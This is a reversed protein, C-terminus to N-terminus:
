VPPDTQARRSTGLHAASWQDHLRVLGEQQLHVVGVRLRAPHRDRGEGLQLARRLMHVRVAQRWQPQPVGPRGAVVGLAHDVGQDLVRPVRNRVRQKDVHGVGHVAVAPQLQDVVGGVAQHQAASSLIGTRSRPPQLSSSPRGAHDTGPDVSSVRPRAGWRAPDRSLCISSLSPQGASSRAPYTSPSACGISAPGLVAPRQPGVLLSATSPKQARRSPRRHHQGAAGALRDDARGRHGPGLAVVSIRTVLVTARGPLPFSSSSAVCTLRVSSSIPSYEPARFSTRGTVM